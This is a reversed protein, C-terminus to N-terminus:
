HAREVDFKDMDDQRRHRRVCDAGWLAFVVVLHVLVVVVTVLVLENDVVNFDCVLRVPVNGKRGAVVNIIVTATAATVAGDRKEAVVVVITTTTTTTTVRLRTQTKRRRGRRRSGLREAVLLM